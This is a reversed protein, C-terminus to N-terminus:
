AFFFDRGSACQQLLSSCTTNTAAELQIHSQISWEDLVPHFRQTSVLAQPLVADKLSQPKVFVCM